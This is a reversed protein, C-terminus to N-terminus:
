EKEKRKKKNRKKKKRKRKRRLSKWEEEQELWRCTSKLVERLVCKLNLTTNLRIEHKQIGEQQEKSFNQLTNGAPAPRLPAPGPPRGAGSDGNSPGPAGSLQERRRRRARRLSPPPPPPERLSEARGRLRGARGGGGSGGRCSSSSSSSSSSPPPAAAAAAAAPLRRRRRPPLRAWGPSQASDRLPGRSGSM